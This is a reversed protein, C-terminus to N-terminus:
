ESLVLRCPEELTRAAIDPVLGALMFESTLSFSL